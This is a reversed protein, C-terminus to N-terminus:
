LGILELLQQKIPELIAKNRRQRGVWDSLPINNSHYGRRFDRGARYMGLAIHYQSLWHRNQEGICTLQFSQLLNGISTSSHTSMRDYRNNNREFMPQIFGNRSAGEFMPQSIGNRSAGEFMPQNLGNQSAQFQSPNFPFSHTVVGANNFTSGSNNVNVNYNINTNNITHASSATEKENKRRKLDTLVSQKQDSKLAFRKEALEQNGRSLKEDIEPDHLLNFENAVKLLSALCQSEDESESDDDAIFFRKKENSEIRRMEKNGMKKSSRVHKSKLMSLSNDDSDDSLPDPTAKTKKTEKKTKKTKRKTSSRTYTKASSDIFRNTPIRKRKARAQKELEGSKHRKELDTALFDMEFPM